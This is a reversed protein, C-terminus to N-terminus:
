LSQCEYMRVRHFLILIEVGITVANVVYVNIVNLNKITQAVCAFVGM